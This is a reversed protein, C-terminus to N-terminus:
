DIPLDRESRKIRKEWLYLFLGLTFFLMGIFYFYKGPDNKIIVHIFQRRNMGGDSKPAFDKLHISIPSFYIPQNFGLLATKEKHDDQIKLLAKVDIARKEMYPMRDGTYYNISLTELTITCAPSTLSLSKGPLLVKGMHTGACLYSILYGTFMILMSYHIIHPSLRLLFRFKTTFVNRNKILIGMRHTTCVFTNISLCALLGVLIFLWATHKLYHRGYSGAWQYFGMDNIPAFLEPHYKLPYYGAFLDVMMLGIIVLTLNIHGWFHWLNRHIKLLVRGAM